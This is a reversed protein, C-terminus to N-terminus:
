SSLYQPLHTPTTIEALMFNLKIITCTIRNYSGLLLLDMGMGICSFGMFLVVVVHYYRGVTSELSEPKILSVAVRQM